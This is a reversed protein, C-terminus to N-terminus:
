PPSLFFLNGTGGTKLGYRLCLSVFNRVITKRSEYAIGIGWQDSIYNKESFGSKKFFDPKKVANKSQVAYVTMGAYAPIWDPHRSEDAHRFLSSQIRDSQFISYYM